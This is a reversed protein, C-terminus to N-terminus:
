KGPTGVINAYSLEKLCWESTGYSGSVIALVATAHQIGLAIEQRWVSGGGIGSPDMTDMWCTLGQKIVAERVKFALSSHAHSYSIMIDRHGAQRKVAYQIETSTTCDVARKGQYNKLMIDAGCQLLAIATDKNERSLALHLATNGGYVACNIDAGHSVLLALLHNGIGETEAAVCIPPCNDIDPSTPDAGSALLLQVTNVHNNRVAWHLPTRGKCDEANPDAGYELLARVTGSFGAISAWHLPTRYSTSVTCEGLSDVHAGRKLYDVALNTNGTGAAVHLPTLAIDAGFKELIPRLIYRGKLLHRQLVTVTHSNGTMSLGHPVGLPNAGYKLLLELINPHKVIFIPALNYGGFVNSLTPKDVAAGADLLLQVIGIHGNLVAVHLPTVLLPSLAEKINTATTDQTHVFYSTVKYLKSLSFNTRDVKDLADVKFGFDLLLTVMDVDGIRCAVHLPNKSSACAIWFRICTDYYVSAFDTGLFLACKELLKRTQQLDNKVVSKYLQSRLEKLVLKKKSVTPMRLCLKAYGTINASHSAENISGLQLKMHARLQGFLKLQWFLMFWSVVGAAMLVYSHSGYELFCSLRGDLILVGVHVVDFVLYMFGLMASVECVHLYPTRIMRWQQREYLRLAKPFISPLGLVINVVGVYQFVSLVLIFDGCKKSRIKEDSHINWIVLSTANIVTNVITSVLLSYSFYSNRLNGVSGKRADSSVMSRNPSVPNKFHEEDFSVYSGNNDDSAIELANSSRVMSFNM